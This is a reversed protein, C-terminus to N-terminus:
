AERVPQHRRHDRHVSSRDTTPLQFGALSTARRSPTLPAALDTAGRRFRWYRPSSQCSRCVRTRHRGPHCRGEAATAVDSEGELRARAAPGLEVLLSEAPETVGDGDDDEVIELFAHEGGVEVGGGETREVAVDEAVVADDRQGTVDAVGIALPLNLGGDAVGLDRAELPQPCRGSIHSRRACCPRSKATPSATHALDGCRADRCHLYAWAKELSESAVCGRPHMTRAGYRYYRFHLDGDLPLLLM